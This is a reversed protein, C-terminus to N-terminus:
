LRWEIGVNGSVGEKKGTLGKIGLDLTLKDSSTLPKLKIGAEGIGTNGKMSPSEIDYNYSLNYGKAKSDFEREIALGTYLTTNDKIEYNYRAGLKAIFSNISDFKYKDGSSMTINDSNTRTYFLKTYIDLNSIDNIDFVRGVGLSLGYYARKSDFSHNTNDGFDSSEFDSKVQGVRISNDVYYNNVLNTKSMLGFGFYSNDGSGKVNGTSFSNYSDYNGYGAEFFAGYTFSDNIQKLISALLSIGRVDVHSGTNNRVSSASSSAMSGEGASNLNVGNLSSLSSEIMSNSATTVLSSSIGGELIAKQKENAGAKTTTAVISKVGNTPNDDDDTTSLEFEYINSIGQMATFKDNINLPAQTIDSHRDLLTIKDGTKIALTNGDMVNIGIKSKSLDTTAGASITIITDNAKIDNPLYFNVFEFNKIEAIEINKTKINLTNGKTANEFIAIGGKNSYGGQLTAHTLDPNGSINITNNIASGKDSYGGYVKDAMWVKGSINVTNNTASGLYGAGGYVTGIRKREGSINVTNSTASGSYSLGGHIQHM